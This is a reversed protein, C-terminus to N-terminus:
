RRKKKEGLGRRCTSLLLRKRKGEEGEPFLTPQVRGGKSKEKKHAPRSGSQGPPKRRGKEGGAFFPFLQSREAEKKKKGKPWFCCTPPSNRKKRGRLFPWKRRGRGKSRGPFVNERQGLDDRRNRKRRRKQRSLLHVERKRKKEEFLMRKL